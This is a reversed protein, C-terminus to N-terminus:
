ASQGKIVAEAVHKPAESYHAFEMSYTARGQTASRLDTAYGFMESLPVEARVQKGGGTTDDMGQIIGRRRNLDGIVDGMYDEPTEVEVKMMPELLVPKAKVAGEKFAMSGAIKFAMENSDVEHYSGDFLTVKVDVVPFGAIVGNKIQEQIGKDVAPIYERPVVGGVIGNVFEYGGGVELPEIRIKVHGYQGRGGSQRVFKGDQEVTGRITERYAVQPKGINAEVKFERRMRDVLIELHLEGMGAIITQGSEEDTRVRFSPDEQALRGLAMGMKEQDGKTKPEVAVSIVPEPFIMRELVIPNALDCLTDGTIVNKLGVAAAIDGSYVEKIEERTNAHMQLIRGMREKSDKTSNLVADGANVVGSYVRFFTLSGVFPDTMIKFALA